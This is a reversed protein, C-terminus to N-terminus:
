FLLLLLLWIQVYGKSNNPLISWQTTIRVFRWGFAIFFSFVTESQPLTPQPHVICWLSLHSNFWQFAVSHSKFISCRRLCTCHTQFSLSSPLSSLPLFITPQWQKTALLSIFSGFLSPFGILLAWKKCDAWTQASISLVEGSFFTVALKSKYSRVLNCKRKHFNM